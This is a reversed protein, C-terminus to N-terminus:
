KGKIYISCVVYVIYMYLWRIVICLYNKIEFIGRFKGIKGKM